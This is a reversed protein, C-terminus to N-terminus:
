FEIDWSFKSQNEKRQYRLKATFTKGNKSKLGKTEAFGDKLLKKVMTKTPKKKFSALFKDNKWIVFTCGNKWNSCGFGKSTEKVAKGCLPCSGLVEHSQRQKSAVTQIIPGDDKKILDVAEQIFSFIENMFAQKNGTGKEIELLQKELKGTFSLDFLDRGPFQEVLKRGTESCHLQKRDQNVYGIDILKKITDARTAATGISYGKLLHEAEEANIKKGCTEMVSLLTKEIHPKPATTKHDSIEADVAQVEDGEVVYPLIKENSKQPDAKKWGEVLERRGKSVFVGPLETELIQTVVETEEYVAAPMFQVIFRTKIADYVIQEEKSLKKPVMYTPIIASHSEVRSNNFVRKSKSFKIEEEYPLGKKVANLVGATKKFLSEELATSSTRPYTIYKKEYLKQATKLVKDSTWGNYKSTIYGQLQSLNFLFPPLERKETKKTHAVVGKANKLLPLIQELTERKPFTVEKDVAYTGEYLDNRITKFTAKLKYYPEPKFQEIERDRDYIIKLTPLLVRGINIVKGYGKQYKLTATSTLNIGIAWDAWQRSLGADRLSALESNPRAEQLGKLVETETWENLLVRFVPKDVKLSSIISDGILQGERDYDCASILSIVDKRKALRHILTLQKKAGADPRQQKTRVKYKFAVPIFPFNDMSWKTYKNDYDKADYLQLLHGFAWTVIYETGEYYGDKKGKIKLADAINKAVSPKEALILKM